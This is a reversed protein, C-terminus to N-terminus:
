AQSPPTALKKRSDAKQAFCGKARLLFALKRDLASDPGAAMLDCFVQFYALHHHRGDANRGCGLGMGHRLGDFDGGEVFERRQRIKGRQARRQQRQTLGLADLAHQQQRMLADIARQGSCRLRHGDHQRPQAADGAKPRQLM